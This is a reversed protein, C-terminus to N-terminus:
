SGEERAQDVEFIRSSPLMPTRSIRRESLPGIYTAQGAEAGTGRNRTSRKSTKM